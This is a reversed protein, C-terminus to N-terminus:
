NPVYGIGPSRIWNPIYGVLQTCPMNAPYTAHQRPVSCHGQVWPKPSPTDSVTSTSRLSNYFANNKLEPSTRTILDPKECLDSHRSMTNIEKKAKIIPLPCNLGSTDLEKDFESM